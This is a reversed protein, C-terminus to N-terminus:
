KEATLTGGDLFVFDLQVGAEHWDSGDKRTVWEGIAGIGIKVIEISGLPSADHFRASEHGITAVQQRRPNGTRTGGKQVGLLRPRVRRGLVHEDLARGLPRRVLALHQQRDLRVGVVDREHRPSHDGLQDLLAVGAVQQPGGVIVHAISRAQSGGAADAVVHEAVLAVVGLHGAHEPQLFGEVQVIGIVAHAVHREVLQDAPEDKQDAQELDIRHHAPVRPRMVLLVGIVDLDGAADFGGAPHRAPRM